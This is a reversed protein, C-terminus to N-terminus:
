CDGDSVSNDDAVALITEDSSTMVQDAQCKAKPSVCTAASKDAISVSRVPASQVHDGRNGDTDRQKFYWEDIVVSDPWANADLFKGRDNNNICLRFAKRDVLSEDRRRRPKVQFCTLVEVSMNSVFSKMDEVTCCSSVNDVCFVSKKRLKKAAVIGASSRSSTGFVAPARRRQAQEQQHQQQQDTTQQPSSEQRPRKTNRRSQVVTFPQTSTEGDNCDNEDRDDSRLIDFRNSIVCPTSTLAAWRAGSNLLGHQDGGTSVTENEAALDLIGRDTTCRRQSIAHGDGVSNINNVATTSQRTVIPNVPLSAPVSPWLQLAKVDRGIAALAAGFEDLKVGLTKVLSTLIAMDGEYLRQSPMNDPSSAVYRPLLDLAKNEDLFVFMSLLDNAENELRRDGSLKQNIDCFSKANYGLRYQDNNKHM